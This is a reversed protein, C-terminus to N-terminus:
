VTRPSRLLALSHATIVYKEGGTYVEADELTQPRSTDVLLSWPQKPLLFTVDTKAANLILLLADDRVPQGDAGLEDIDGDLYLAFCHYWPSHWEGDTMDHGDERLWRLQRPREQGTTHGDLFDRRRLNPHRRRLGILRSTFDLLDRQEDDFRWDYWSTPNDQNYANNNGSQTRGMEDGGLLMPVGQAFLLTALLNRKQQERAVRVAADPSPGEVGENLSLNENAGDHNEEGNALNRKTSYTVLDQLTFGDHSTVYNISARPGRGTTAFVDPSATVRRAFPGSSNPDGRWYRRTDDRFKDNWESWPAPFGGTRYGEPGLDWPEAILKVQSLVPDQYVADLFSSRPDFDRNTRALTAALDFRFGDVHMEQVWYRLSDLVLRLVSPEHLNLTNGTGTYNVYKAPNLPDLRYYTANDLGRYSLTPGTEDAESTHNYVVDLLVEIGNRHLERVMQKFETVQGGRDGSSSFWADPAFFAIPGYGWYDTLGLKHLRPSSSRATVPLLEVATIGLRRFHAIAADSALGLFTGRLHEPVDPHQRSFGRVHTEYIVTDQWPTRPPADGQWDFADDYVIGRPVSAANDTTDPQGSSTYFSPMTSWDFAGILARAYPDLLLKSPNFRLGKSPDCPGYARYGYLQGATIGSVFSHWVNDSSALLEIRQENRGDADFLCLEIREAGRSYV